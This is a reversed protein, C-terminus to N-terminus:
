DEEDDSSLSAMYRDYDSKKCFKCAILQKGNKGEWPCPVRYQFKKGDKCVVVRPNEVTFKQKRTM